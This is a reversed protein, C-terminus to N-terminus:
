YSVDAKEISQNDDGNAKNRRRRNRRSSSKDNSSNVPSSVERKEDSQEGGTRKIVNTATSDKDSHVLEAVVSNLPQVNGNNRQHVDEEKRLQHILHMPPGTMDDAFEDDNGDDKNDDIDMAPKDRIPSPPANTFPRRSGPQSAAFPVRSTNGSLVDLSNYGYKNNSGGGGGGIFPSAYRQKLQEVSTGTITSSSGGGGSGGSKSNESAISQNRLDNTLAASGTIPVGIGDGGGSGVLIGSHQSPNPLATGNAVMMKRTMSYAVSGTLLSMLIRNLPHGRKKSGWVDYLDYLDEDFQDITLYVQEAYDTLDLGLIPYRANVGEWLGVVMILIRQYSKVSQSARTEYSIKYDLMQLQKLTADSPIDFKMGSFRQKRELRATLQAKLQLREQYNMRRPSPMRPRHEIGMTEDNDNDEEEEEEERGNENNGDGDGNDDEEEEEEDIRQQHHKNHKKWKAPTSRTPKDAEIYEEGDDSAVDILRKEKNVYADLDSDAISGREDDDEVVDDDEDDHKNDINREATRKKFHKKKTRQKPLLENVNTADVDEFGTANSSM